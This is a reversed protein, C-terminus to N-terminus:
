IDKSRRRPQIFVLLALGGLMLAWTGPEPVMELDGNYLYLAPAAYIQNDSLPAGNLDVQNIAIPTYEDSNLISGPKFLSTAVGVV